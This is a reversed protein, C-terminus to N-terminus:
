FKNPIKSIKLNQQAFHEVAKMIDIFTPKELLIEWLYEVNDSDM